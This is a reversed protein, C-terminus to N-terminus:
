NAELIIMKWGYKSMTVELKDGIALAEGSLADSAKATKPLSISVKEEDGQNGLLLLVRGDKRKVTTCRVNGPSLKVPNGEDWGPWVLTDDLGYGFNRVFNQIKKWEATQTLGADTQCLLGYGFTLSLLTDTAKAGNAGTSNVLVWPICGTQTGLSHTLIYADSFREPYPTDGYHMEWDLAIGAFSLWPVVNCDTM